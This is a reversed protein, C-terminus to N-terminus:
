WAYRTRDRREGGPFPTGPATVAYDLDVLAQAAVTPMDRVLAAVQRERWGRRSERLTDQWGDLVDFGFDVALMELVDEVCPRMREGGVPLHITSVDGSREPLSRTVLRTVACREAHVNWHAAPATHMDRRYDLHLLPLRGDRVEITSREVALYRGRHDLTVIFQMWLNALHKGGVLLPISQPKGAEVFGIDVALTKRVARPTVLRSADSAGAARPLVADLTGQLDRSFRWALVSLHDTM